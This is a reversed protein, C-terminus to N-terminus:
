PWLWAFAAGTALGYLVGDFVFKATVGWSLGKWISETFSSFAYGLIGATGTLRFVTSADAGAPLALSALYAVVAGILVTYLFWQGLAKGMSPMGAPRVIITGIPGNAFKEKMEPSGLDKMEECHPFMYQGPPVGNARLSELVNAENPLGRYDGKHIPICMHLVSSVVFVFVASVLIPMWLDVLSLM